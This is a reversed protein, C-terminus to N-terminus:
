SSRRGGGIGWSLWMATIRRRPAGLRGLLLAAVAGGLGAASLVLGLVVASQNLVGRVLLPVLVALPSFAAFNGVAAAVLTAWLWPQSQVYRLGELADALMTRGSSSRRPRSRIALLSAASIAFSLADLGFGWGLGLSGVVLGGIAPGAFSMAATHSLRDLANGQVLLDRPLLEPIFATSAPYFLADAAGFVVALVILQWLRAQGTWVLAAIIAVAMGRTTDSVLMAVRRAMRDVLVGGFLILLVTPLLRAALVVSLPLPRSDLHLTELALTVTFIGDGVM